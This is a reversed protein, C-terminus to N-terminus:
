RETRSVGGQKCDSSDLSDRAEVGKRIRPLLISMGRAADSPSSRDDSPRISDVPFSTVDMGLSLPTRGMSTNMHEMRLFAPYGSPKLHSVLKLSHPPRSSLPAGEASIWDRM